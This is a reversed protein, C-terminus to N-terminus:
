LKVCSDLVQINNKGLDEEINMSNLILNFVKFFHMRLKSNTSESIEYLDDDFNFKFLCTSFSHDRYFELVLRGITEDSELLDNISDYIIWWDNLCYLIDDLRNLELYEEEVYSWDVRVAHQNQIFYDLCFEIFEDFKIKDM